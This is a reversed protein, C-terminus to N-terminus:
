QLSLPNPLTEMKHKERVLSLLANSAQQCGREAKLRSLLARGRQLERGGRDGLVRLQKIWRFLSSVRRIYCLQTKPPSQTYTQTHTHKQTYEDGKNCIEVVFESGVPTGLRCTERTVEQKTKISPLICGGVCVCVGVCQGLHLEYSSYLWGCVLCSGVPRM